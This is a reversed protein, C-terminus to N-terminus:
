GITSLLHALPEPLNFTTLQMSALFFLALTVSAVLLPGWKM